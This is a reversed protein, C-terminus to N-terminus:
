AEEDSDHRHIDKVISIPRNKVEEFVKSLYIAMVGQCLLIIGGFFWTSAITSMYGPIDIGQFYRYFLYVIFCFASISLLMGLYFVLVLPKKSFSSVGTVMLSLRKKLTYTSSDKYNRKISIALQKYGITAWIGAMFVSKENYNKLSNVYERRMLRVNLMNEPISTESLSNFLKYFMKGSFNNWKSGGRKEQVGYVVDVQYDNLTEFFDVLLLPSEELDSDVYFVYEGQAEKLGTMIARHHGFNRSLELIKINKDIALLAQAKTLSDDTSGDDVIILEYSKLGLTTVAKLTMAYFHDIFKSSNFM